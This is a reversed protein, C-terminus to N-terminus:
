IKHIVVIDEDTGDSKRAKDFINRGAKFFPATESFGQNHFYVNDKDFGVVPVFHGQYGKEPREKLTNWDILVIPISEPNIKSLLEELSITKEYLKVGRTKAEEALKKSKDIDMDSFKQYYPKQLHSEQFLLHKTFFETRFGLEASAIALSITSIGKERIGVKEEILNINYNKGFYSFAMQLATPGCNVDTTQKYFPVELIM